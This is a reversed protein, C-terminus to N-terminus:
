WDEIFYHGDICWVREGKPVSENERLSEITDIFEETSVVTNEQNKIVNNEIFEVFEDYNRYYHEKEPEEWYSHWKFQFVFDTSQKGLFIGNEASEEESDVAYYKVSM